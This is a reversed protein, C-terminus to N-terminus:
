ISFPVFRVERIADADEVLQEVERRMAAQRTSENECETRLVEYRREVALKESEVKARATQRAEMARNMAPRIVRVMDPGVLLGKPDNSATNLELSLDVGEPAYPGALQVALLKDNYTDVAEEAKGGKNAVSVELTSVTNRSDQVKRGLEKVNQSLSEHETNMRIVEEASLNQEQVTRAHKNLEAELAGVESVTVRGMETYICSSPLPSICVSSILMGPRRGTHRSRRRGGRRWGIYMNRTNPRIEKLARSNRKGSRSTLSSTSRAIFSYIPESLVLSLAGRVKSKILEAREANAAQLARDHEEIEKHIAAFKQAVM